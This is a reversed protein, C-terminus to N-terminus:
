ALEDVEHISNNREQKKYNAQVRYSFSNLNVSGTIAEKITPFRNIHEGLRNELTKLYKKLNISVFGENCEM